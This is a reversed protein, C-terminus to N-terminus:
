PGAMTDGTMSLAIRVRFEREVMFEREGVQKGELYLVRPAVSKNGGDM